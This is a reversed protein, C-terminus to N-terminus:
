RGQQKEFIRNDSLWQMNITNYIAQKANDLRAKNEVTPSNKYATLASNYELREAETM